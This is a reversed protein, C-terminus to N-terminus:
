DAKTVTYGGAELRRLLRRARAVYEKRDADWGAKHAAPDSADSSVAFLARALDRVATDTESDSMIDEQDHDQSHSLGALVALPAMRSVLDGIRFGRAEIMATISALDSALRDLDPSKAGKIPGPRPTLDIGTEELVKERDERYLARIRAVTEAPVALKGRFSNDLSTLGIMESAIELSEERSIFCNLMRKFFLLNGSISPNSDHTMGTFTTEVGPCLLDCFDAVIDRDKLKSREYHRVIVNERGFVASWRAILASFSTSHSEIFDELSMSINRSHLAQQYWSVMYRAYDRLYVVIRTEGPPCLRALPAPDQLTAFNESSLVVLEHGEFEARLREEWDEPMGQSEPTAGRLVRTLGHHASTQIGTEPYCIGQAALESRREHFAKQLSSTGTKNVGIHVVYKM